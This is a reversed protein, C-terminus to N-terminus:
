EPSPPRPTLSPPEHTQSHNQKVLRINSLLGILPSSTNAPAFRALLAHVVNSQLGALAGLIAVNEPPLGNQGELGLQWGAFALGTTVLNAALRMLHGSIIPGLLNETVQQGIMSLALLIEIPLQM